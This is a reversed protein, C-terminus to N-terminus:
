LLLSQIKTAFGQDLIAIAVRNTKGIASALTHRDDVEVYPVKYTECKNVLKKKTQNSIDEALLILKARRFQIDKLIVEEGISVKRARYALGIINLYQENM